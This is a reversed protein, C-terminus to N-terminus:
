TSLLPLRAWAGQELYEATRPIHISSRFALEIVQGETRGFSAADSFLHAGRRVRQGHQQRPAGSNFPCFLPELDSNEEFLDRTPIRLLMPGESEYHGHLRVGSQVPGNSTGPWFFVHSNLFEVFDGFDGSELDMTREILPKQDKLTVNLGNVVLKIAETRRWRLLDSRGAARMIEAATDIRATSILSALNEADTVHYSYPRLKVYRELNIPM